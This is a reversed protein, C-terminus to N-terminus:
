PVFLDKHQETSSVLAAWPKQSVLLVPASCEPGSPLTSPLEEYQSQGQQEQKKKKKKKWLHYVALGLLLLLLLLVVSLGAALLVAQDSGALM